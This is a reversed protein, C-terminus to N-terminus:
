EPTFGEDMDPDLGRSIAIQSILRREQEQTIVLQRDREEAALEARLEDDLYDDEEPEEPIVIEMTPLEETTDVIETTPLEETTDVIETTVLEDSGIVGEEIAMGLLKQMGHPWPMAKVKYYVVRLCNENEPTIDIGARRMVVRAIKSVSLRGGKTTMRSGDEAVHNEVIARTMWAYPLWFGHQRAKPRKKVAIGLEEMLAEMGKRDNLPINLATAIEPM